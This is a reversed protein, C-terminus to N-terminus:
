RVALHRLHPLADRLCSGLWSYWGFFRRKPMFVIRRGFASRSNFRITVRHHPLWFSEIVSKVDALPVTTEKIYNSVYFFEDDIAVRKLPVYSYCIVSLTVIWFILFFWGQSQNRDWNTSVGDGIVFGAMLFYMLPAIYKNLITLRSSITRKM